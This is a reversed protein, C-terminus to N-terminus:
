KVAEADFRTGDAFLVLSPAFETKVKAADVGAEKRDDSDFKSYERGLSLRATAGAALKSDFKMPRTSIIDDFADRLTLIGKVGAVDKTGKNHVEIVYTLYDKVDNDRYTAEHLRVDVLRVAVVKAFEDALAKRQAVAKDAAEKEAAQKGRQEAVFKRQEEIAKGLTMGEPIGASVPIGFLGGLKAGMTHRLVYAAVLERDEQKLKDLAPKISEMKEIERPLPTDLPSSCAAVLAALVIWHPARM